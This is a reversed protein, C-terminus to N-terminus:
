KKVVKEVATGANTKIHLLYTGAAFDALNLQVQNEKNFDQSKVKKGNIDFVEVQEVGINDRNTITVIDTVPNPFVTFTAAALKKISLPLTNVASEKFNDLKAFSPSSNGNNITIDSQLTLQLLNFIKFHNSRLPAKSKYTINASPIEFYVYGTTYDVYAIVKIWSWPSIPITGVVPIQNTSASVTLVKTSESYFFEVPTVINPNITENSEIRALGIYLEFNTPFREEFAVYFEGEYKLIDNGATRNSWLTDLDPIEKVAYLNTVYSPLSSPTPIDQMKLIKGRGTEAEITVQHLPGPLNPHPVDILLWNGQSLVMPNPNIYNNITGLNGLTYNDFDDSWLVQAQLGSDLLCV